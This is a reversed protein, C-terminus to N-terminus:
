IDVSIAVFKLTASLAVSKALWAQACVAFRGGSRRALGAAAGGSWEALELSRPPAGSPM